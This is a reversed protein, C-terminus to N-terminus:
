RVKKSLVTKIQKALSGKTLGSKSPRIVLIDKNKYAKIVNKHGILIKPYYIKLNESSNIETEILNFRM